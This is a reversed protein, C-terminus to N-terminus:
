ARTWRARRVRRYAAVAAFAPVCLTAASGVWEFRYTQRLILAAMFYLAVGAFTAAAAVLARFRSPQSM